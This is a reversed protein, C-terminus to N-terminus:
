ERCLLRRSRFGALVLLSGGIIWTSPEPIVALSITSPTFSASATTNLSWNAPNNVIAQWQSPLRNTSPSISGFNLQANITEVPNQTYSGPSGSASLPVASLGATLASPLQSEGLAPTSSTSWGTITSFNATDVNVGAIFSSSAGFPGQYALIQDGGTSLNINPQSGSTYAVTGGTATTALTSSGAGYGVTIQTGRYVISTTTYTFSTENLSAGIAARFSTGNWGIDTFSIATGVALDVLPVFSIRSANTGGGSANYMTFVIDGASLTTQASGSNVSILFILSTFVTASRLFHLNKM